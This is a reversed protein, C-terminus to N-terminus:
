RFFNFFTTSRFRLLLVASVSLTRKWDIMANKKQQGFIGGSMLITLWGNSRQSSIALPTMCKFFFFKQNEMNPRNLVQGIAMSTMGAYINVWSVSMLVYSVCVRGFIPFRIGTNFSSNMRIYEYVIECATLLQFVIENFRFVESNNQRRTLWSVWYYCVNWKLLMTVKRWTTM